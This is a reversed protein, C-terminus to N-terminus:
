RNIRCTFLKSVYPIRERETDDFRKHSKTHLPKKPIRKHIGRATCHLPFSVCTPFLFFCLLFSHQYYREDFIPTRACRVNFFGYM